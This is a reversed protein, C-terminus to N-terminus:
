ASERGSLEQAKMAHTDAEIEELLRLNLLRNQPDLVQVLEDQHPKAKAATLQEHSTTSRPQPPPSSTNSAALLTPGVPFTMPM